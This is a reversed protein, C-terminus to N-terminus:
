KTDKDQYYLSDVEQKTALRWGNAFDDLMSELMREFFHKQWVQFTDGDKTVLAPFNAENEYWPKAIPTLDVNQSFTGTFMECGDIHWKTALVRNNKFTYGIICQSNLEDVVKLLECEFSPKEFEYVTGDDATISLIKPKAEEALRSAEKILTARKLSKDRLKGCFVCKDATNTSDASLKCNCYIAQLGEEISAFARPKNQSMASLKGDVIYLPIEGKINDRYTGNIVSNDIIYFDYEYYKHTGIGLPTYGDSILLGYAEQSAEIYYGNWMGSCHKLQSNM